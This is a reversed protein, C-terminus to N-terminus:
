CIRMVLADKRASATLLRKALVRLQETEEAVRAERAEDGDAQYGRLCLWAPM